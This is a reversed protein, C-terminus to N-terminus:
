PKKTKRPATLVSEVRSILCNKAIAEFFQCISFTPRFTQTKFKTPKGCKIQM